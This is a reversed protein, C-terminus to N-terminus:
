VAENQQEGTRGFAHALAAGIKPLRFEFGSAELRQPEIRSSALLLADAMEGLVLRAAFAPLPMFTPRKLTQGLVRTYEANTCPHPTVANVPGSLSDTRLCHLIIGLLDDLAIWSMWQKGDGIKGGLGARFVPLSQALAGGAPSLVVGIRLNVLRIGLGSAAQSATEWAECVDALYGDGREADEEAVDDGCDGYFGIASASVLTQPAKKLRGLAEVLKTTGSVRSELIAAKRATTWRGTAIGEGALHVFGDLGELASTDSIGSKADWPVWTNGTGPDRRAIEIVEHGGSTLFSTLATGVLGTSGTVAIRMPRGGYRSHAELDSRTVAHRYDFMRQVESDITRGAILKGLAGFPLRYTVTDTLVSGTPEAAEFRHDHRWQAFPGSIQTDTFGAVPAVNSHEAIWKRTIPFAKMKIVARAGDILPEARQELVASRWPPSLREFAGRRMHWAALDSVSATTM